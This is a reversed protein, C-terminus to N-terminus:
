RSAKEASLTHAFSRKGTKIDLPVIKYNQIYERGCPNTACIQHDTLCLFRVAKDPIILITQLVPLRM